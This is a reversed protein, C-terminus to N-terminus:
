EKGETPDVPRLSDDEAPLGAAARRIIRSQVHPNYMTDIVQFCRRRVQERDPHGELWGRIVQALGQVSGRPFLAGTVGPELAEIEPGHGEQDDHTVLPTGFSFAHIITLGLQDPVVCLDAAGLIRGIEEEDYCAGHFHLRPGLDLDRGIQQLRDRDPGDGVMLVNVNGLRHAAQLLLDLQKGPTLRGIYVLIPDGALDDFIERRLAGQDEPTISDRLALHADYDLSNYVVHLQDNRLGFNESLERKAWHSYLLFGHPLKYFAQRVLKILGSEKRTVGHTWYLVRRGLLRLVLACIWTTLFYSNGLLIVTRARSRILGALLGPQLLVAPGLWLNKVFRWPLGGQDVPQGALEPPVLKISPLNSVRDSFLHLPAQAAAYDRALARLVPLRYLAFYHYAIATSPLQKEM